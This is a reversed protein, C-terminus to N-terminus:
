PIQNMPLEIIPTRTGNSEAVAWLGHFNNRLGPKAKLFASLVALAETRQAAPDTVGTSQYVVDLDPQNLSVDIGVALIKWTRVGDPISLPLQSPPSPTIREQEERLKDLNPSTLFNVPLLMYRAMDYCYWASWPDEIILSRAREWYWVGDHGDFVGQHISLGALKWAADPGDWALILGLQGGLPAGAARALIVAYRGPPLARMFITVTLSGSANSCYFQTDAPATQDSADLLYVDRLQAHGGRVLPQAQDVAASITSWASAETPLLNAKLTVLDEMIVAQTLGQGADALAARDQSSLEAQSTCTVALSAAPAALLVAAALIRCFRM